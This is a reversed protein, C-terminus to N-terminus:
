ILTQNTIPETIIFLPKAPMITTAFIRTTTCSSIGTQRCLEPASLPFNRVTFDAKPYAKRLQKLKSKSYPLTEKVLFISGYFDGDFHDGTYLHSNPHLADLGYYEAVRKFAGIKLLSPAPYYIYKKITDTYHICAKKEEAFTLSFNKQIEGMASLEVAELAIEEAPLKLPSHVDPILALIEKVEGQVALIYIKSISPLSETLAQLDILPSLKLLLSFSKNSDQLNRLIEQPNPSIEELLFTRRGSDTRRSPDCYLLTHEGTDVLDLFNVADNTCISLPPLRHVFPRINFKLATALSPDREIYYAKQANASMALFDIGAGGTLDVLTDSSAVFHSKFHATAESSAQEFNVGKPFFFPKESLSPYKRKWKKAVEIQTAVLSKLEQPVENSGLLLRDVSCDKYQEAWQMVDQIIELTLKKDM